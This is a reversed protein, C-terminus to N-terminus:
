AGPGLHVFNKDFGSPIIQLIMQEFSAPSAPFYWATTSSILMTASARAFAFM